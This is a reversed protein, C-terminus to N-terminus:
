LGMHMTQLSYPADGGVDVTPAVVVFRLITGPVIQGEDGGRVVPPLFAQRGCQRGNQRSRGFVGLDEASGQGVREGEPLFDALLPSGGRAGHAGRRGM